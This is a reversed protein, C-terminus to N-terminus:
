PSGADLDIEEGVVPSSKGEKLTGILEEPTDSGFHGKEKMEKLWEKGFNAVLFEDRKESHTNHYYKSQYTVPKFEM